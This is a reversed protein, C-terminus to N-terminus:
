TYMKQYTSIVQKVKESVLVIGQNIVTLLVVELEQRPLDKLITINSVQCHGNVVVEVSNDVSITKEQIQHKLLQMKEQFEKIQQPNM